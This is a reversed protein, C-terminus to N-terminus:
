GPEGTIFHYIIEIQIQKKSCTIPYYFMISEIQTMAHSGNMSGDMWGDMWVVMREDM